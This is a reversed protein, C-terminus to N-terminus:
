QGEGLAMVTLPKPFGEVYVQLPESFLGQPLIGAAAVEVTVARGPQILPQFEARFLGSASEVKAIRLPATGNNYLSFRANVPAKRDIKGLVLSTPSVDVLLFLSDSDIYSVSQIEIKREVAAARSFVSNKLDNPNDSTIQNATYEGFPVGVVELKGGNVATGDIYPAFAGGDAIRLHNVLSAIRRQTLAVNYETKALPSAFGRVGLRIRYGKQLEELLLEKFLVLDAMGKQVYQAFFDEIDEGAEMARDGALGRSYETRYEPIMALYDTYADEYNVKSTTSHSRPDPVDNHFYLTVPLRRNLEALTEKKTEPVVTVPPAFAFIDSCCTPNKAYLVGRRNSSVYSTDGERFYYVDNEPSNVPIGANKPAEYQGNVIASYHVDYGGFGDWWSSSFYLRRSEADYWPSLENDPSNIRNLPRVKGFQNGNNKIVSFWIDMGGDSGERDSAFFLMEEGEVIATHPMTTNAGPENIIGGLLDPKGWKGSSYSCVAIKCDFQQEGSSCLSFYFRRGDASFTGNGANQGSEALERIRKARGTTDLAHTYLQNTYAPDYVEESYGTSDARLSSFLIDDGIIAHGFESNVTNVGEPLAASEVRATDKLNSQAWLCSEMERKSKLYLYGKKEGAYKKKARKFLEVAEDYHGQQKEMLAWQLLSSPFIKAEEKRFVKAYYGAAKPYDKYARLAEAYKWLIDVTNSDIELAKEYYVLAYVYDGKGYQEDAFEIYKRLEGQSLGSFSVALLAAILYLRSM